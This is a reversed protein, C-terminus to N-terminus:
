TGTCCCCGRTAWQIQAIDEIAEQLILDGCDNRLQLRHLQRLSRFLPLHFQPFVSRNHSGRRVNPSSRFCWHWQVASGPSGACSTPPQHKKLRFSRGSILRRGAAGHLRFETPCCSTCSCSADLLWPAPATPRSIATLEISLRPYSSRCVAARPGKRGAQQFTVLPRNLRGRYYIEVLATIM